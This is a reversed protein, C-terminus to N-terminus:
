IENSHLGDFIKQALVPGIGDIRAIEDVSAEMIAEATKFEKYLLLQRQKGVGELETLMSKYNKSRALRHFTVAFRHSEDRVRILLRLAFHDRPLTLPLNNQTTFIEEDKKALSIVPINLGLNLIIENVAHLQGLGGDILILDPKVNWNKDGNKLRTLRRTLTEALSAFDDAGEVTKIKFKRYDKKAPEGDVFVVMSAVADTGSIHSIDFGEIRNVAPLGLLKALEEEASKTLKNHRLIRDQSHTVYEQANKIANQMLSLKIGKQPITIKVSVDFKSKFFQMLLEAQSKEIQSCAIEKPLAGPSDYYSAIFSVLMESVSSTSDTSPFNMQGVNKGNRIIM